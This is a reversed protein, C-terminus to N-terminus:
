PDRENQLQCQLILPHTKNQECFLGLPQFVRFNFDFFNLNFANFCSVAVFAPLDDDSWGELKFPLVIIFNNKLITNFGFLSQIKDPPVVGFLNLSFLDPGVTGIM